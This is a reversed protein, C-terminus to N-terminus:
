LHIEKVTRMCRKLMSTRSFRWSTDDTLDGTLFRCVEFPVLAVRESEIRVAVPFCFNVAAPDIRTESVRFTMIRDFVLGPNKQCSDRISYLRVPKNNPLQLMSYYIVLLNNVCNM